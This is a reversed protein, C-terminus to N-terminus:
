SSCLYSLLLHLCLPWSACRQCALWLLKSHMLPGIAKSVLPPFVLQRRVFLCGTPVLANMVALRHCSDFTFLNPSM